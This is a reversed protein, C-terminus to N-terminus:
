NGTWWGDGDHEGGLRDAGGARGLGEGHRVLILVRNTIGDGDRKLGVAAENQGATGGAGGAILGAGEGDLEGRLGGAAEPLGEGEGVRDGTSGISDQDEACGLLLSRFRGFGAYVSAFISRSAWFLRAQMTFAIENIGSM